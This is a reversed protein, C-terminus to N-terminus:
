FINGPKTVELQFTDWMKGNLLLANRADKKNKFEVIAKGAGHM